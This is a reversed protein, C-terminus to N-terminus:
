TSFIIEEKKWRKKMGNENMRKEKKKKEIGSKWKKKKKKKKEYKNVHESGKQWNKRAPHIKRGSVIEWTVNFCTTNNIKTTARAHATSHRSGEIGGGGKRFSIKRRFKLHKLAVPVIVIQADIFSEDICSHPPSPYVKRIPLALSIQQLAHGRWKQIIPRSM